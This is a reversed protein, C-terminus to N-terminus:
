SLTELVIQGPSAKFTLGESRQIALIVPTFGMCEAGIISKTRINQKRKLLILSCSPLIPEAWFCLAPLEFLTYVHLPSLADDRGLFTM